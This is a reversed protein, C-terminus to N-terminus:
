LADQIAPRTKQRLPRRLGKPLSLEATGVVEPGIDIIWDAARIISTDPEVVLVSNGQDWLRHLMTISTARISGWRLSM